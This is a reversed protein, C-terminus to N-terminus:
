GRGVVWLCALVDASSSATGETDYVQLLARLGLRIMMSAFRLENSFSFFFPTAGVRCITHYLGGGAVNGEARRM